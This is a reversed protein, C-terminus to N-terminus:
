RRSSTSVEAPTRAEINLAHLSLMEDALLSYILQHRKVLSVGEFAESVIRVAFHGEGNLKEVEAHGAHM